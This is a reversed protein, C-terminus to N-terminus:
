KRNKIRNQKHLIRQQLQRMVSLQLHFLMFERYALRSMQETRAAVATTFHVPQHVAQWSNLREPIRNRSRLEEPIDDGVRKV